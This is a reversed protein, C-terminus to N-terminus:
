SLTPTKLLKTANEMQSLFRYQTAPHGYMCVCINM